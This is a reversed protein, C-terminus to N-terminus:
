FVPELVENGAVYRVKINRDDGTYIFKQLREELSLPKVIPLTSDDIVLADFEYDKEFSGVKGFFKGGGKTALYFLESTTLSKESRRKIAYNLNSVQAASVITNLMSLSHGGSIDSGLGVPIGRDILGRIPAMGSSLNSNSNPCHVAFVQRKAMLDIEDQDLLVCHAMCTPLQGLLGAEDYVRAYNKSNPHLQKVFSIEDKNECLHSQVKANYKVALKGLGNMLKTTCTPVFRPTIIPKVLDYKDSYEILIEETDKLSQETTEVLFDPSNRDMNVKGVYASLGSQNFMDMLMKSAEKHLTAFIVSRTTGLKWLEKILYSYVRKAYALDSYKKEEPFTYTELWPMLEKDLGLGLNAFQPAHLHLDVFGPIILSTGYDKVLIDKYITPLKEYIGKVYKDEIIIYSNKFINYKGFSPTFIINGKVAYINNM